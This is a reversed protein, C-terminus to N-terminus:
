RQMDSSTLILNMCDIRTHNATAHHSSLCPDEDAMGGDAGGRSLAQPPSHGKGEKSVDLRGEQRCVSGGCPRGERVLQVRGKLRLQAAPHQAQVGVGPSIGEGPYMTIHRLELGDHYVVNVLHTQSMM